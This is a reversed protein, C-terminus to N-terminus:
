KATITGWKAKLWARVPEDYLKLCAQAISVALVFVVLTGLWGIASPVGPMGTAAPIKKNYVWAWFCYILPYHTIYIPYSIDGLWKCLRAARANVIHGGAGIAVIVPFVILICFAEYLGNMWVHEGDGIRPIWFVILIL